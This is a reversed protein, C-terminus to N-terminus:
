QVLCLGINEPMIDSKQCSSLEALVLTRGWSTEHLEQKCTHHMHLPYLRTELWVLLATDLDDHNQHKCGVEMAM